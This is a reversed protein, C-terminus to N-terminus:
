NIKIEFIKPWMKGTIYMTKSLPNYAIGNMELIRGYEDKAKKTLDGLDLKGAVVGTQPHIKVIYNTGYVNAFLWGDIYELENLYTVANGNDTVPIVKIAKYTKSDMYTINSTGDSMILSQGDTTLGWGEENYFTFEGTKKLSHLDYTFGKRNKYTLQFITDRLIAIGEGFFIKRDLEHKQEVRGSATDVIGFYSKTQPLEDPSGTSEYLKGNHWCLGETFAVTDHPMSSVVNYQILQSNNEPTNTLANDNNEKDKNICSPMCLIFLSILIVLNKRRFM